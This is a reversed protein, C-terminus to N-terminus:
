SITVQKEAKDILKRSHSALPLHQAWFVKGFSRIAENEEENFTQISRRTRM